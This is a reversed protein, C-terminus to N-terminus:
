GDAQMKDRVPAGPVGGGDAVALKCCQGGDRWADNAIFWGEDGVADDAMAPLKGERVTGVRDSEKEVM